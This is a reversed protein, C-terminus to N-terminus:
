TKDDVTILGEKLAKAVAETRTNVQLRRLVNRFHTQVTRESIILKGAIARNNLGRAALELVEMERQRLQPRMGNLGAKGATRQLRAVLRSHATPDFVSQGGHVARVTGVLASVGTTKLLYGLAGAEIAPLVYSDYDYASLAVISTGPSAVKIRRIAEIGNLRPMAIDVVAVDPTLERALSVAQEGDSAIGVVKLDDESEFLHKLGERFAPHDDAILVTIRSVAKAPPEARLIGRLEPSPPMM